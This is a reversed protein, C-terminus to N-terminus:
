INIVPFVTSTSWTLYDCAYTIIGTSSDVSGTLKSASDIKTKLDNLTALPVYNYPYNPDLTALRISSSISVSATSGVLIGSISIDWTTFSNGNFWATANNLTKRQM